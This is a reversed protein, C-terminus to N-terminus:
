SLKTPPGGHKPPKSFLANPKTVTELSGNLKCAKVNIIKSMNKHDHKLKYKM